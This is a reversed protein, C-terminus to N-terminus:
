RIQRRPSVQRWEKYKEIRADLDALEDAAQAKTFTPLREVNLLHQIVDWDGHQEGHALGLAKVVTVRDQVKRFKRPQSRRAAALQLKPTLQLATLQPAPQPSLLSRWQSSAHSSAQLSPSPLRASLSVRLSLLLAPLPPSLFLARPFAPIYLLWASCLSFHLATRASRRPFPLTRYAPGRSRITQPVQGLGHRPLARPAPATSAYGFRPALAALHPPLSWVSYM